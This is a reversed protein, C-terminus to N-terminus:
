PPHKGPDHAPMEPMGPIEPTAMGFCYSALRAAKYYIRIFLAAAHHIPQMLPSELKQGIGHIMSKLMVNM